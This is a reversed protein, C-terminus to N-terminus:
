GRSATGPTIGLGPGPPPVLWPGRLPVGPQAPDPEHLRGTALGQAVRVWPDDPRLRCAAVAAHSAAAIGVPGDLASSLYTPLHGGLTTDLSGIKSLKVTIADCAGLEAARSAEAEDSVAEDAVLPVTVRERLRAMEELGAVPQEVLELGLDELRRIEREAQTVTWCGNVDLRIKAGPGLAERVAAVQGTDGEPGLKLKFVTFGDAAWEEAQRRTANPSGSTLTANCLVPKTEPIPPRAVVGALSLTEGAPSVRVGQALLEHLPLKLRRALADTLATEVACRAPPGLAACAARLAPDNPGEARRAAEAWDRLLSEVRLASEGGRLSLPVAEGCGFTGSTTELTLLVTDRHELRGRATAYPRRFQLSQPIVRAERLPFPGTEM